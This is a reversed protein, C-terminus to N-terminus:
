VAGYIRGTYLVPDPADAAAALMPGKIFETALSTLL